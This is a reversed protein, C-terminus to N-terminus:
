NYLKWGTDIEPFLWNGDGDLLAAAEDFALDSPLPHKELRASSLSSPRPIIKYLQAPIQSVYGQVMNSWIEIDSFKNTTGKQLGTTTGARDNERQAQSM